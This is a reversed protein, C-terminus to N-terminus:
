RLRLIVRMCIARVANRVIMPTQGHLVLEEQALAGNDFGNDVLELVYGRDLMGAMATYRVEQDVQQAAQDRVTM